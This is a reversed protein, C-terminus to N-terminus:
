HINQNNNFRGPELYTSIQLFNNASFFHINFKEFEKLIKYCSINTVLCNYLIPSSFLSAESLVNHENLMTIMM